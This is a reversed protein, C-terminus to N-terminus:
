DGRALFANHYGVSIYDGVDELDFGDFVGVALGEQFWLM